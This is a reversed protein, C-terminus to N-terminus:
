RPVQVSHRSYGGPQRKRQLNEDGRQLHLQQRLIRAPLSGLRGRLAGPVRWQWRLTSWGPPSSFDESLAAYGRGRFGDSVYIHDIASLWSGSSPELYLDYDHMGGQSPVYSFSVNLSSGPPLLVRKIGLYEGSGDPLWVSGEVRGLFTEGGPNELTFSLNVQEGVQVEPASAYAGTIRPIGLWLYPRTYPYSDRANQSITYPSDCRRNLDSDYCGEAATDYDSWYNGGGGYDWTNGYSDAAQISNDIFANHYILSSSVSELAVGTAWPNGSTNRVTNLMLVAGSSSKARIGYLLNSSITNNVVSVNASYEFYVGEQNGSLTCNEVRVGDSAVIYVGRWFNDHLRSGEVLTAPSRLVYVGAPNNGYVESGVIRTGVSNNVYVGNWRNYLFSVNSFTNYHSENLYVGNETISGQIISNQVTNYSSEEFRINE